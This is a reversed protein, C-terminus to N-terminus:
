LSKAVEAITKELDETVQYETLDPHRMAELVRFVRSTEGGLDANRVQRLLTAIVVEMDALDGMEVPGVNLDRAFERFNISLEDLVVDLMNQKM